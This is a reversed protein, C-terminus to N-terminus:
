SRTIKTPKSKYRKCLLKNQTDSLSSESKKEQFIQTGHDTAIRSTGEMATDKVPHEQMDLNTFINHTHITSLMGPLAPAQQM